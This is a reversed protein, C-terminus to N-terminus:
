CCSLLSQSSRICQMHASWLPTVARCGVKLVWQERSPINPDEFAYHRKVPVLRMTKIGHKLMVARIEAKLDTCRSHLLQLLEMKRDSDAAVAAELSAIEGSADDFVDVSPIILLSRQLNPVVVCCSQWTSNSSNSRGSNNSSSSGAVKGFMYLTDASFCAAVLWSDCGGEGCTCHNLRSDYNSFLGQRLEYIHIVIGHVCHPLSMNYAKGPRDPNEYADMFFFPVNGDADVALGEVLAADGAAASETAAATPSAEAEATDEAGYVEMWGTAPSARVDPGAPTDDAFRKHGSIGHPQKAAPTAAPISDAAENAASSHVAAAPKAPLPSTQFPDEAIDVDAVAACSAPGLTIAVRTTQAIRTAAICHDASVCTHCSTWLINAVLM